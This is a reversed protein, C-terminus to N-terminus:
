VAGEFMNGMRQEEAAGDEAKIQELTSEPDNSYGAMRISDLQSLIAKGGNAKQLRDIQLSEDNQIYPTITHEVEMDEIDAAWDPRMLKVFEKVVNYERELFELLVGSEDGIKLHADSLAMQRADYGIDGLSKMSEFSLDPMQAQMFILKLMTDVHYRLSEISQAWSVYSVDGNNEVRFIRRSEGKDESGQIQGAVKLVPSANYALVDSNRSLTYEIEERLHTISAFVPKQRSIYVGPIKGLANRTASVTEWGDKGANKWFYHMSATYTEFYTTEKGKKKHSYELSMAIMDGMKDFLPYLKTGDMPSYTKCKLKYKSPFGYLTNPKKTVYWVTFIECAAYYATCRHINETDIHAHKYIAEVARRIDQKDDINYYTREVPIAFTFEATRKTILQELGLHIRSATEVEGNSKIKDRRGQKDEVIKHRAPDYDKVTDSWEPVDTQKDKLDNIIDATPRDARIIEEIEDM